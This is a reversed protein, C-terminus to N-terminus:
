WSLYLPLRGRLTPVLPAAGGTLTDSIQMGSLDAAPFYNIWSFCDFSDLCNFWNFCTFCIFGLTRGGSDFRCSLRHLM